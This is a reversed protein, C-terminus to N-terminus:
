IQTIIPINGALSTGKRLEMWGKKEKRRKELIVEYNDITSIQFKKSTCVVTINCSLKQIFYKDVM